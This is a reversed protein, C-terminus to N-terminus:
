PEAPDVREFNSRHFTEPYAPALNTRLKSPMFPAKDEAYDKSM